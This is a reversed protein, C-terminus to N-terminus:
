AAVLLVDHFNNKKKQKRGRKPFRLCASATISPSRRGKREGQGNQVTTTHHPEGGEVEEGEGGRRGEGGGEM